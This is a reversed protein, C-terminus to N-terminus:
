FFIYEEISVSLPHQSLFKIMKSTRVNFLGFLLECCKESTKGKKWRYRVLKKILSKWDIQQLVSLNEVFAGNNLLLDITAVRYFNTAVRLAGWHGHNVGTSRSLIHKVLNTKQLEVAIMLLSHKKWYGVQPKINSDGGNELYELVYEENLERRKMLKQVKFFPTMDIRQFAQTTKRLTNKAKKKKSLQRSQQHTKLGSATFHKPSQSWESSGDAVDSPNEVEEPVNEFFTESESDLLFDSTTEVVETKVGNGNRHLYGPPKSYNALFQLDQLM